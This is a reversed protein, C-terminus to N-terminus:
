ATALERGQERNSSRFSSLSGSKFDNGSLRNPMWAGNSVSAQAANNAVNSSFASKSFSDQTFFGSNRNEPNNQSNQTYLPKREALVTFEADVIDAKSYIKFTQKETNASKPKVNHGGFLNSFITNSVVM